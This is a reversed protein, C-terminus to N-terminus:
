DRALTLCWIQKAGASRLVRSAELLTTGTTIVDDIVIMTSDKITKADSVAFSSAMNISRQAKTLDKQTKTNKTRQLTQVVPKLYYTSLEGAVIASQNFGRWRLRQKALPIPCLVAGDLLYELDHAALYAILLQALLKYIDPLFKYKGSIIAEAILPGHYDFVSILGDPGYTKNCKSHTLGAFSPMRCMICQQHEVVKLQAQCNLCVFLGEKTCGLCQMPFLTDLILNKVDRLLSSM